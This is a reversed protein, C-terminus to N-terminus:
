LTAEFAAVLQTSLQIVILLTSSLQQRLNALCLLIVMDSASATGFMATMPEIERVPQQKHNIRKTLMKLNGMQFRRHLPAHKALLETTPAITIGERAKSTESNQVLFWPPIPWKQHQTPVGASPYPIGLCQKANIM